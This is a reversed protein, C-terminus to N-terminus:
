RKMLQYEKMGNKIFNKRDRKVEKENERKPM